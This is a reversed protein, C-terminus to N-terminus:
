NTKSMQDHIAFYVFLLVELYNEFCCSKFIYELYNQMHNYPVRLQM